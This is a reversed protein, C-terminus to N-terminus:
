QRVVRFGTFFTGISPVQTGRDLIGGDSNDHLIDHGKVIIMGWRSEPGQYNTINNNPFEGNTDWCWEGVNGNMDYMGLENPKKTGVPHTIGNSNSKYWTYDEVKNKGTSGAFALTGNYYTKTNRAGLAAWTWEMETPLRYGDATLNVSINRWNNESPDDPSTPVKGWYTPDSYGNLSYVPTLNERISLKNCFILALYWNVCQVPDNDGSSRSIDSPDFGMISNFQYRTIEHIGIRFASVTMIPYQSAKPGFSGRPIYKLTGVNPSNYDKATDPFCSLTLCFMLIIGVFYNKM